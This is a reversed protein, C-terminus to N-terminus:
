MGQRNCISYLQQVGPHGAGLRARARAKNACNARSVTPVGGNNDRHGSRRAQAKATSSIVQGRAMTPLDFVPAIDQAIGPTAVLLTAAAIIMKM